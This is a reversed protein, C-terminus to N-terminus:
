KAVQTALARMADTTAPKPFYSMAALVDSFKKGNLMSGFPIWYGDCVAGRARFNDGYFKRSHDGTTDCKFPAYVGPNMYRFTAIAVGVIAAIVVTVILIKKPKSLPEM